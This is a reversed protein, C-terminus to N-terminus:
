IKNKLKFVKHDNEDDDIYKFGTREAVHQSAFNEQATRLILYELKLQKFSYGILFEVCKTMIGLHQFDGSLWYGVEGSKKNLKHLDIMGSIKGDIIIVLNFATGDVMKQQFIKISETEKQISDISNLWKLYKAFQDHNKQLQDFLEAAQWVEPLVLEVLHGKIKFSYLTFARMM